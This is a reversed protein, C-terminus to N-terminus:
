PRAPKTEFVATGPFYEIQEAVLHRASEPLSEDLFLPFVPGKDAQQLLDTRGLRRLEVLLQDHARKARAKEAPTRIDVSTLERAGPTARWRAIDAPGTVVHLVADSDAESRVRHPEAAASFPQTVGVDFGRRELDLLVGFGIGGLAVPDDWEVLYRKGKDLEPTLGPMIAGVTRSFRPSSVDATGYRDGGGVLAVLLAGVVVVAPALRRV